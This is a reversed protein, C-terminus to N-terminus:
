MHPRMVIGPDRIDFSMIELDERTFWGQSQWFDKGGSNEHYVFIHCRDIGAKKLASMCARVLRAGIAKRRFSTDIALHNLYGRRGDHGCIVAGVLTNGSIAVFSMGPNRRLYHRIADRDDAASLGIGESNQWLAYVADYDSLRMPRLTISM